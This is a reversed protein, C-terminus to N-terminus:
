SCLRVAVSPTCVKAEHVVEGGLAERRCRQRRQKAAQVYVKHLMQRLLGDSLELCSYKQDTYAGITKAHTTSITVVEEFFSLNDGEL